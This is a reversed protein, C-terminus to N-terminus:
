RFWFFSIPNCLYDLMKVTTNNAAIRFPTNGQTGLILERIEDIDNLAQAQLKGKLTQIQYITIETLKTSQKIIYTYSNTAPTYSVFQLFQTIPYKNINYKTLGPTSTKERITITTNAEFENQNM